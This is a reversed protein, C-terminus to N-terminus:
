HVERISNIDRRLTGKMEARRGVFTTWYVAVTRVIIKDKKLRLAYPQRRYIIYKDPLAPFVTKRDLSISKTRFCWDGILLCCQDAWAFCRISVFMDVNPGPNQAETRSSVNVIQQLWYPTQILKCRSNFMEHFYLPTWSWFNLTPHWLGVDLVIKVTSQTCM